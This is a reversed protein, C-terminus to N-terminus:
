QRNADQKAFAKKLLDTVRKTKDRRIAYEEKEVMSFLGKLAERTVYDDLRPNAKDVFPIKNYATVADTWYKNAGFKDLSVNIDPLFAQYLQEFTKGKLYETAANDRGMLISTADELTMEQIAKRFIPKAKVAADEAGNNIKELVINEVNSFGPINRLKDTVKRAEPPLLIKYASNFYGGKQSLIDAGNGIGIDLAQRIARAIEPTTLDSLIADGVAQKLEACASLSLVAALMLMKKM